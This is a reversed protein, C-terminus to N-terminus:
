VFLDRDIAWSFDHDNHNKRLNMGLASLVSRPTPFAKAVKTYDNEFALVKLAKSVKAEVEGQRGQEKPHAADFRVPKPWNREENTWLSRRM